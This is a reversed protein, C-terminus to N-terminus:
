GAAMAIGRAPSACRRDARVGALLARASRRAASPHPPCRAAELFEFALAFALRLHREFSNRHTPSCQRRDAPRALLPTDAVCLAICRRDVPGGGRGAREEADHGLRGRCCVAILLESTSM